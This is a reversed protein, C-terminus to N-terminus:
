SKVESPKFVQDIVKSVFEIAWEGQEKDYSSRAFKVGDCLATFEKTDKYLPKKYYKNVKLKQILEKSTSELAEISIENELYNRYIFSLETYLQIRHVDEESDLLSKEKLEKLQELAVERPTAKILAKKAQVKKYWYWLGAILLLAGLSYYVYPWYDFPSAIITESEFIDQMTSDINSLVELPVVDITDVVTVSDKQYELLQSPVSFKGSLFTNLHFTWKQVYLSDKFTLESFNFNQLEFVGLNNMAYPLEFKLSDKSEVEIFYDFSEGLYVPSKSVWSRVNTSSFGLQTFVLLGLIITKINLRMFKM